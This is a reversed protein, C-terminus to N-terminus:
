RDIAKIQAKFIHRLRNRSENLHWKVTGEKMDLLDVIEKISFEEIYFLTCVARTTAPLRELLEFIDDWEKEKFPNYSILDPLTDTYVMKESEDKIKRLETLAANRIITYIWNFLTGKEPDFQEINKFVRLMGNNLVSIIDQEDKFFTKCLAFLAPYFQRYLKEQSLRNHKKCGEIIDKTDTM